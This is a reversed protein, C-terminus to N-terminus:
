FPLVVAGSVLLLFFGLVTVNLFLMLSLVFRQGATMGLVPIEGNGRRTTAARKPMAAMPQPAAMEPEPEIVVDEDFPSVSKSRLDDFM